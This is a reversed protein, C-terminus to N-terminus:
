SREENKSEGDRRKEQEFFIQRGRLVAYTGLKVSNYILYPLSFAIVVVCVTIEVVSM